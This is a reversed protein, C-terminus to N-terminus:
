HTASELDKAAAEVAAAYDELVQAARTIQAEAEQYRKEELGERIGPLTKAGYGTYFGPAYILHKFWPRRPLGQDNTLRRETQLLKDNVARLTQASSGPGSTFAKMARSYHEASRELATQANDLPAFNVFPPVEERPPAVTPRRPDSSAAYAGD